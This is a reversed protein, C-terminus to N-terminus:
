LTDGHADTDDIPYVDNSDTALLERAVDLGNEDLETLFGEIAEEIADDADFALTEVPFVLMVRFWRRGDAEM